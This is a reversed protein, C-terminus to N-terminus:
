GHTQTKMDYFAKIMELTKKNGVIKMDPYVKRMMAISGSHDPEMHNIILYDVPKCDRLVWSLRQLYDRMFSSKVTDIVAVKDDCILYSNYSVGRPLTWLAEFLDTERDNAGIWYIGERIPIAKEM